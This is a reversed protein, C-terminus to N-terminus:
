GLDARCLSILVAMILPGLLWSKLQDSPKTCDMKSGFKETGLMVRSYKRVVSSTLEIKERPYMTKYCDLLVRLEDSDLVFHKFRNPLGVLNLDSWLVEGLNLCRASNFLQTANSVIFHDSSDGKEQAFFPVFNEQFESPFKM